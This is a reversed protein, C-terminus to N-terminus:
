EQVTRAFVSCMRGVITQYWRGQPKSPNVLEHEKGLFHSGTISFQTTKRRFGRYRKKSDGGSQAWYVLNNVQRNDRPTINMGMREHHPFAHYIRDLVLQANDKGLM